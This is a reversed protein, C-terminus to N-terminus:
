DANNSFNAIIQSEYVPDNIDAVESDSSMENNYKHPVPVREGKGALFWEYEMDIHGVDIAQYGELSLDYALVGSSPGIALIFLNNNDQKLSEALINDYQDFSSTAPAIIRKISAANSFLDNGIGLRTQAGEVIIINKDQWIKQLQRFRNKPGDTDLDNYIVYPRTIYADSYIYDRRLLSSHFRRTDENMYVRIANASRENYKSLDGYNDAIALILSDCNSNLVESLRASLRSDLRQFKHRNINAIISFEGDGFRALSKHENIILDLTESSDRFQPFFFWDDKIHRPDSIEYPRNNYLAYLMNLQLNIELDNNMCNNINDQDNQIVTILDNLIAGYNKLTENIKNIENEINNM